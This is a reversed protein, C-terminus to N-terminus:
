VTQTETLAVDVTGRRGVSDGASDIFKVDWGFGSGAGLLVTLDDELFITVSGGVQNVTISGSSQTIGSPFITSANLYILGDSLDTPNSVVMQVISATEADRTKAKLTWITQTWDDPITLGSVTESFTLGATITLHGAMSSAVYTVASVDIDDTILRIADLKARISGATPVASAPALDNVANSTEQATLWGSSVPGNALAAATFRYALGAAELMSNLKEVLGGTGLALVLNDVPDTDGNMQVVNASVTGGVSNIVDSDVTAEALDLVATGWVIYGGANPAVVGGAVRYTGATSTESVGTTSFASYTTGDLNLVRLGIALGTKGPGLQATAPVTQTM